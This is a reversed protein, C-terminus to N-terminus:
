NLLCEEVNSCYQSLKVVAFRESARMQRSAICIYRSSDIDGDNKNRKRQRNVASLMRNASQGDVHTLAHDYALLRHVCFIKCFAQTFKVSHVVQTACNPVFTFQNRKSTLLDFTLIEAFFICKEPSPM